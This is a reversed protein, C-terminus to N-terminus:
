KGDQEIMEETDVINPRIAHRLFERAEPLLTKTQAQKYWYDQGQPTTVWAFASALDLGGDLFKQINSHQTEPFRFNRWQKSGM